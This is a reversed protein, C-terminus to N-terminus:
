DKIFNFKMYKIFNVAIKGITKYDLYPDFKDTGFHIREKEDNLFLEKSCVKVCWELKLSSKSNHCFNNMLTKIIKGKQFNSFNSRILYGNLINQCFLYNSQKAFDSKAFFEEKTINLITMTKIM